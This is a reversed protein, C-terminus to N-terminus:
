KRFIKEAYIKWDGNEPSKRQKEVDDVEKVEEMFYREIEM